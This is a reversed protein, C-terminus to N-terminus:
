RLFADDWYGFQGRFKLLWRPLLINSNECLHEIMSNITKLAMEANEYRYSNYLPTLDGTPPKFKRTYHVADNRLKVIKAFDSLPPKDDIFQERNNLFNGVVKWRQRNGLNSTYPTNPYKQIIMNIYSELCCAASIITMLSYEIEKLISNDERNKIVEDRAVKALKCNRLAARYFLSEIPSYIQYGGNDFRFSDLITFRPIPSPANKNDRKSNKIEIHYDWIKQRLPERVEELEEYYSQVKERQEQTPNKLIDPKNYQIIKQYINFLSVLDFLTSKFWSSAESINYIEAIKWQYLSGNDLIVAHTHFNLKPDWIDISNGLVPFCSDNLIGDPYLDKEDMEAVPSSGFATLLLRQRYDDPRINQVIYYEPIVVHKEPM